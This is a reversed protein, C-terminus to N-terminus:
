SGLNRVNFDYHRTIGQAHVTSLLLVVAAILHSCPLASSAAM